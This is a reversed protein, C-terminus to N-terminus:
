QFYSESTTTTTTPTTMESKTTTTPTARPTQTTTAATGTVINPSNCFDTNCCFQNYGNQSYVNNIAQCTSALVCGM